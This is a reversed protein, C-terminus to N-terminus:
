RPLLRSRILRSVARPDLRPGGAREIAQRLRKRWTTPPTPDGDQEDEFDILERPAPPLVTEPTTTPDVDSETDTTLSRELEDSDHSPPSDSVDAADGGSGEVPVPSPLLTVYYQAGQKRTEIPHREGFQEVLDGFRTAIEPHEKLQFGYQRRLEN